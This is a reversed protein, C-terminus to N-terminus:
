QENETKADPKSSLGSILFSGSLIPLFVKFWVPNGYITTFGIILYFTFIVVSLFLYTQKKM